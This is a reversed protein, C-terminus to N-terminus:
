AACQNRLYTATHDKNDWDLGYCWRDCFGHACTKTHQCLRTCTNCRRKQARQPDCKGIEEGLYVVKVVSGTPDREYRYEDDLEEDEDGMDPPLSRDLEHGTPTGFQEADIDATAFATVMITVLLAFFLKM